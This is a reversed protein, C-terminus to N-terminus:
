RTKEFSTGKIASSTSFSRSTPVQQSAVVSGPHFSPGEHLTPVKAEPTGATEFTLKGSMTASRWRELVSVLYEHGAHALGARDMGLAESRPLLHAPLQKFILRAPLAVGEGFALVECTSLSPVFESLNAAADSVASRLLAQDRDNVM